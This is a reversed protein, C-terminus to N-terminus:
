SNVIGEVSVCGGIHNNDSRDPKRWSMTPTVISHFEATNAGLKLKQMENKPTFALTAGAWKNSQALSRYRPGIDCNCLRESQLNPKETRMRCRDYLIETFTEEAKEGKFEIGM